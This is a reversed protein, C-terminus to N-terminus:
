ENSNDTRSSADLISTLKDINSNQEKEVINVKANDDIKKLYKNDENEDGNFFKDDNEYYILILGIVGFVGGVVGLIRYLIILDQNKKQYIKFIYYFLNVSFFSLGNFLNAFGGIILFYRIGYINMLHVIMAPMIGFFALFIFILGIFFSIPFGIVFIISMASIVIGIIKMIPRLGYRDVLTAWIAGVITTIFINNLYFDIMISINNLYDTFYDRFTFQIFHAYFTLLYTIMMNRMFRFNCVVKKINEITIPQYFSNFKPNKKNNILIENMEEKKEINEDNEIRKEEEEEEECDPDYKYFFIITLLTCIPLLIM